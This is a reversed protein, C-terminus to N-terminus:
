RISVTAVKQAEAFARKLYTAFTSPTWNVVPIYEPKGAEVQAKTAKKLVEGTPSVWETGTLHEILYAESIDSFTFGRSVLSQIASREEATLNIRKARGLADEIQLRFKTASNFTVTDGSEKAEKQIAKYAELLKKPEKSNYAIFYAQFDVAAAEVKKRNATVSKSIVSITSITAKKM